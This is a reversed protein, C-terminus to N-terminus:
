ALVRGTWEPPAAALAKDTSPIYVLNGSAPAKDQLHVWTPTWRPDEMYLGAEMLANKHALCWSAFHRQPDYRDIGRGTKHTSSSAGVPCLRNRFGGNGSGSIGSGTKPNDPLPVGDRFALAYVANVRALLDVANSRVAATADPHEAYPGLYELLTVNISM